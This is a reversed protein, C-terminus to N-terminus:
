ANKNIWENNWWKKNFVEGHEKNVWELTILNFLPPQFFKDNNENFYKYNNPILQITKNLKETLLVDYKVFSNVM